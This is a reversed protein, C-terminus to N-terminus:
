TPYVGQSKTRERWAKGERECKRRWEQLDQMTINRPERTKNAHDQLAQLDEARFQFAYRATRVTDFSGPLWTGGSSIVFGDRNDTQYIM